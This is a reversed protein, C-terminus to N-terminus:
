VGIFSCFWCRQPARHQDRPPSSMPLQRGAAVTATDQHGGVTVEVGRAVRLMRHLRIRESRTKAQMRLRAEHPLGSVFKADLLSDALLGDISCRRWDDCRGAPLNEEGTEGPRLRQDQFEEHAEAWSPM